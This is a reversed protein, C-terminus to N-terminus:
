LTTFNFLIKFSVPKRMYTHVEPFPPLHSSFYLPHQQRRGIQLLPQQKPAAQPVPASLIPRNLRFAYQRLNDICLGMNATAVLLDAAGLPQSRGCHEAM